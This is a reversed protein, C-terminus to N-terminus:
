SGSRPFIRVTSGPRAAQRRLEPDVKNSQTIIHSDIISSQCRVMETAISAAQISGVLKVVSVNKNLTALGDHVKQGTAKMEETSPVPDPPDTNPNGDDAIGTSAQLMVDYEKIVDSLDDSTSMLQAYAAQRQDRLVRTNEAAIQRDSTLVAPVGAGLAGLLAGVLAAVAAIRAAKV